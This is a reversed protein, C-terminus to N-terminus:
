LCLETVLRTKGVGGPGVVTTLGPQALREQLRRLEGTRGVFSSHPSEANTRLEPRARPPTEDGAVLWLDVPESVDRLEFRGLSRAAPSPLEHVVAGSVLVQGANAAASVRAAVHVALAVYERGVPIAAGTHAGARVRLRLGEREGELEAQLACLAVVASEAEQFALFASDGETGVVHGGYEGVIRGVTEHMARLAVAYEDGHEALARTSGVVDVFAFTVRGSPLGM